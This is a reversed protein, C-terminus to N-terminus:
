QTEIWVDHDITGTYTGLFILSTVSITGDDNETLDHLNLNTSGREPITLYYTEGAKYYSAVTKDAKKTRVLPLKKM